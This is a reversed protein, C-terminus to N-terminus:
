KGGGAQDNNEVNAVISFVGSGVSVCQIIAHVTVGQKACNERFRKILSAHTSGAKLTMFGRVCTVM